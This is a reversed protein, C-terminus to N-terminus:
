RQAQMIAYGKSYSEIGLAIAEAIQQRYFRNNLMKEEYRNSLFGVEILVAPMRCTKLVSFNAGKIGLIRIDLNDGAVGCIHEALEISEARNQTYILDWITADLNISHRAFAADELKLNEKKATLLARESDDIKSSLYYVEFGYLRRVRNANAHISIFLDTDTSNALKARELLSVTKDCDRTLTIEFGQSRLLVDLKRAIDLCVEKEKLGTRGIAGPDDGGHGPDIIIKKIRKVPTPTPIGKHLYAKFLPDIVDRKFRYPVVVAGKYIDVPYKIDQPSGNVMVTSSGIMLNIKQPGKTLTVKRAFTDYDWNIKSLECLSILPVYTTGKINYSALGPERVAVSACGALM